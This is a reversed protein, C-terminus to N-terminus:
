PHLATDKAHVNDAGAKGIHKLAEEYGIEFIEQSRGVDAITYKELEQPCILIDCLKEDRKTTSRVILTMTREIMDKFKPEYPKTILPNVDIGILTDCLERIPTAPLNRFLGGDVYATGNIEVPTYVVPICCSAIVPQILPGESFYVAKGKVFDTATVTLPIKLEGFTRARLHRELFSQLKGTKSLSGRPVSLETFDRLTLKELIKLLMEPSYGDAILAGAMAGASTGSIIGPKIGHEAFAKLAGLHAICKAAGGSLAFGYEHKIGTKEM